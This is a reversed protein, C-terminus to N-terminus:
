IPHFIARLSVLGFSAAQLRGELRADFEDLENADRYKRKRIVVAKPFNLRRDQDWRRLTVPTVGYRECVKREPLLRKVARIM